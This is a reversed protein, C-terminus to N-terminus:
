QGSKHNVARLSAIVGIMSATAACYLPINFSGYVTALWGSIGPAIMQGIAYVSTVLAIANSGVGGLSRALDLALTVIGMFTAGLLIASIVLGTQNPLFVPVLVSTFQLFFAISLAKHMGIKKGYFGWFLVSPISAIGVWLWSMNGNISNDNLLVPLFTATIVYGFGGCGYALTLWRIAPKNEETLKKSVVPAVSKAKPHIIFLAPLVMLLSMAGMWLWMTQWNTHLQNLWEILVTSLIIGLGANAFIVGSLGSRRNEALMELIFSSTYVLSFASAVGAIFRWFMWVYASTSFAMAVMAIVSFILGTKLLLTRKGPIHFFVPFLAGILYGLYNASAVYGADALSLDAQQQMIPIMPTYAFRGLGLGATLASTAVALLIYVQKM